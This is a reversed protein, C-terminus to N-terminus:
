RSPQLAEGARREQPRDGQAMMSSKMCGNGGALRKRAASPLCPPFFGTTLTRPRLMISSLYFSAHEPTSGAAWVGPTAVLKAGRPQDIV